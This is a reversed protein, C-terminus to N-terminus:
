VAYSVVKVNGEQSRTAIRAFRDGEDAQLTLGFEDGPEAGLEFARQAAEQELATLSRDANPLRRGLSDIYIVRDPGNTSLIGTFGAVLSDRLLEAFNTKSM